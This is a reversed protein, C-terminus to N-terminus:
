GDYEFGHGEKRISSSDRGARAVTSNPSGARYKVSLDDGAFISCQIAARHITISPQSLTKEDRNSEAVPVNGPDATVLLDSM